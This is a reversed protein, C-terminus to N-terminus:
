DDISPHVSYREAIVSLNISDINDCNMRAATEASMIMEVAELTVNEGFSNTGPALGTFQFDQGTFGEERLHCIILKFDRDAQDRYEGTSLVAERLHYRLTVVSENAIVTEVDRDRLGTDTTNKIITEAREQLTQTPSPRPTNTPRTATFTPTISPTLTITPSNTPSPTQTPTYTTTTTFTTTPTFTKTPVPTKTYTPTLTSTPTYTSTSTPTWTVVTATQLVAIQTEESRRTATQKGRELERLEDEVAQQTQTKEKKEQREQAANGILVLLILCICIFAIIGGFTIQIKRINKRRRILKQQSEQKAYQVQESLNIIESNDPYEKGLLQLMNAAHDFNKRRIADKIIGIRQNLLGSKAQELFSTIEPYAETESELSSLITIAENFNSSQLAKQAMNLKNKTIGEKAKNVLSTIELPDIDKAGELTKLLNIAEAFAGQSILKEAQKFEKRSKSSFM